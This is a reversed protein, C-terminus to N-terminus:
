RGILSWRRWFIVDRPMEGESPATWVFVGCAWGVRAAGGGRHSSSSGCGGRRHELALGVLDGLQLLHERRRAPSGLPLGCPVARRQPIPWGSQLADLRDRALWPAHSARQRRPSARPVRRPTTAVMGRARESAHREGREDKRNREERTARARGMGDRHGVGLMTRFRARACRQGHMAGRQKPRM